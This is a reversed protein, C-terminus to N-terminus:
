LLLTYSWYFGMTLAFNGTLVLFLVSTVHVCLSMLMKHLRRVTRTVMKLVPPFNRGTAIKVYNCARVRSAREYTSQNSHYFILRHFNTAWTWTYTTICSTTDIFCTVAAIALWHLSNGCTSGWGWLFNLPVPNPHPWATFNYSGHHSYWGCMGIETTTAIRWSGLPIFVARSYYGGEFLLWM